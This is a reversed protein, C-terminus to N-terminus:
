GFLAVTQRALMILTGDQAWLGMDQVSYGERVDEGVSRVLYWADSPARLAAAADIIEVSWTVTSVPVPASLMPYAAIPPMDGLAILGSLSQMGDPDRHRLWLMIEPTEARSVLKQGGAVYGEFHQTFKPRGSPAFAETTGPLPAKPMARSRYSYQSERAAGFSFTAHTALSGAARLEVAVFVSSKGRRLLRPTIEIIGAAPGVFTFQASRLPPLDPVARETAALCLAATLGGFSTRGQLWDEPIEAHYTNGAARIASLLASFPTV